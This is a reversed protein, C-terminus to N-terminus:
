RMRVEDCSKSVEASKTATTIRAPTPTSDTTASWFSSRHSAGHRSNAIRVHAGARQALDGAGEQAQAGRRVAAEGDHADHLALQLLPAPPDRLRAEDLPEGDDVHQGARRGGLHRDEQGVCPAAPPARDDAAEAEHQGGEDDHQRQREGVRGDAHARDHPAREVPQARHHDADEGDGEIPEAARRHAAGRVRGDRHRGRQHHEDRREAQGTDEGQGAHGAQQEEM